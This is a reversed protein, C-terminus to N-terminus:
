SNLKNDESLSYNQKFLKDKKIQAKIALITLGIVIFLLVITTIIPNM